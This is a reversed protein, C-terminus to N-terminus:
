EMGFITLPIMEGKYNIMLASKVGEPLHITRSSQSGFGAGFTVDVRQMKGNSLELLIAMAETPPTISKLPKGNPAFALLTGRNQSAIYVPAGTYATLKVLAKADGPVLFGSERPTTSRFRGKGDGLLVAGISADLRGIFIENGYDNGVMLLDMLGDANIDEAIMGNMPAIQAITPLEHVKFKGDGLNEVWV